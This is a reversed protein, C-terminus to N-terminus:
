EYYEAKPTAEKASLMKELRVELAKELGKVKVGYKQLTLYLLGDLAFCIDRQLEGPNEKLESAIIITMRTPANKYYAITRLNLQEYSLFLSNHPIDPVDEYEEFANRKEGTIAPKLNIWEEPPVLYVGHKTFKVLVNGNAFDPFVDPSEDPLVEPSFSFLSNYMEIEVMKIKRNIIIAIVTAIVFLVICAIAFVDSLLDNASNLFIVTLSFTPILALAYILFVALAMKRRFPTQPGIAYRAIMDFTTGKVKKPTKITLILFVVFAVVSIGIFSYATIFTTKRNKEQVSVAEEKDLIVQGNSILSTIYVSDTDGTLNQASAEADISAGKPLADIVDCKIIESFLANLRFPKDYEETYILFNEEESKEVSTVTATIPTFNDTYDYAFTVALLILGLVIFLASIVTIILFTHRKTNPLFLTNDM